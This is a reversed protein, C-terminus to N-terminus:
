GRHCPCGNACSAMQLDKAEARGGRPAALPLSGSLARAEDTSTVLTSAVVPRPTSVPQRSGALARADDTSSVIAPAIPRTAAQEVPTAAVLARAEDTSTPAQGARATSAAFLLVATLILSLRLTM